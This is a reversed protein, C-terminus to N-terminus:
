NFNAVSDLFQRARSDVDHGDAVCRAHGAAAVRTRLADDAVYRQAQAVMDDPTSFFAAEQGERYMSLLEPTRPALMLTGVAPIEFCRRTYQDRNRRSLFVLAIKAASLGRAYDLGSLRTIPLLREWARGRANTTWPADGFIRVNLGSAILRELHDLREDEEYHGIFTVDCGYRAIDAETLRIRHHLRPSYWSRLLEVNRAGARRYEVLNVSRYAFCGDAVPILRRFRRWISLDRDPGFPDDNNYLVVRRAGVARSARIASASLWTTRWALVVDPRARACAVVFALNAAVVGPGVGYKGQVRRLVETPGFYARVPFEVCDAAANRLAVCFEPEYMESRFEGVVM